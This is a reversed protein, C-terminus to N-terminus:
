CVLISEVIMAVNVVGMDFEKLEKVRTEHSAEPYRIALAASCGRLPLSVSMKPRREPRTKELIKKPAPLRMHPSACDSDVIIIPRTTAPMPPPPNVAILVNM